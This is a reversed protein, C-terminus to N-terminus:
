PNCVANTYEFTGASDLWVCRVWATSLINGYRNYVSATVGSDTESGVSGSFIKQASVTDGIDIDAAAQAVFSLSPEEIDWGQDKWTARYKKGSFVLGKRVWATITESVTTEAGTTGAYVTCTAGNGFKTLATPAVLITLEPDVVEWHDDDTWVLEYDEGNLVLGNRIVAAKTGDVTTFNGSGDATTYFDQATGVYSPTGGGGGGSGGTDAIWLGEIKYARIVDGGSATFGSVETVTVNRGSDALPDGEFVSLTQTGTASLSGDLEGVIQDEVYEHVDSFSHLMRDIGYNFPVTHVRTQYTYTGDPLVRGITYQVYDDFGSEEWPQIGAYVSDQIWYLSAYYDTAIKLALATCETLNDPDSGGTTFNALATTQITKILTPNTPTGTGNISASTKSITYVDTEDVIGNAWRRFEISVSAPFVIGKHLDAATVTGSQLAGMYAQSLNRTLISRSSTWNALKYTGHNSAAFANPPRYNFLFRLGVSHAMADLMVAANVSRSTTVPDVRGYDSSVSDVDLDLLGLITELAALGSDWTSGGPAFNYTVFQWFYRLDVLPLIWLANPDNIEASIPRPPLLYVEETVATGTYGPASSQIVLPAHSNLSVATNSLIEDKKETTALFLGFSWRSAGTPRYWSNLLPRVPQSYNPLPIVSGAQNLRATSWDAVLRLDDLPLFQDLWAQVEGAPNDLLLEVGAYSIM